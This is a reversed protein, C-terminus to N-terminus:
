PTAKSSLIPRAVGACRLNRSESAPLASKQAAISQSGCGACASMASVTLEHSQPMSRSKQLQIKPAWTSTSLDMPASPTSEALKSVMSPPEPVTLMYSM